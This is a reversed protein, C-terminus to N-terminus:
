PGHAMRMLTARGIHRTSSAMRRNLSYTNTSHTPAIPHGPTRDPRERPGSAGAGDRYATRAHDSSEPRVWTPRARDPQERPGPRERKRGRWGDILKVDDARRVENGPNNGTGTM